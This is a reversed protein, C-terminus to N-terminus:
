LISRSVQTRCAIQFYEQVGAHSLWNSFVGPCGRTVTLKFISRSLRTRCHILFYNQVGAHSLWNSVLTVKGLRLSPTKDTLECITERFVKRLLLDKPLLEKTLTFYYLWLVRTQNPGKFLKPKKWVHYLELNLASACRCWTNKPQRELLNTEPKNEGQLKQEVGWELNHLSRWSRWGADGKHVLQRQHTM